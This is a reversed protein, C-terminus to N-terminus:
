QELQYPDAGAFFVPVIELKFFLWAYEDLDPPPVGLFFFNCEHFRDM